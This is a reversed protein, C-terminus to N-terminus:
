RLLAETHTCQVHCNSYTIYFLCLGTTKIFHAETLLKLTKRTIISLTLQGNIMEKHYVPKIM